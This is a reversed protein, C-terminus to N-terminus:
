SEEPRRIKLSEVLAEARSLADARRSSSRGHAQHRPNESRKQIAEFYAIQLAWDAERLKGLVEECDDYESEPEKEPRPCNSCDDSSEEELKAPPGKSLLTATGAGRDRKAEVKNLV